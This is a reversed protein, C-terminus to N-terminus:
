ELYPKLRLFLNEDIVKIEMLDESKTFDGHAQRYNLIIKALDYSIYPHRAIIKLSDSNIEIKNVESQIAFHQLLNEIVDEKLGFVESLQTEESFGGLLNRYKIIRESYSPGIGNVLQLDQATAINIDRVVIEKKEPEEKKKESINKQPRKSTKTLYNSPYYVSKDFDEVKKKEEYSSEVEAIWDELLNDENSSLLVPKKMEQILFQSTVLLIIIIFILVLTGRAETKSFSLGRSIARIIFRFM